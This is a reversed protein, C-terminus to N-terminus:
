DLKTEFLHAVAQKMWFSDDPPQHNRKSSVPELAGIQPLVIYVVVNAITRIFV